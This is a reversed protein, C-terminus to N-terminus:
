GIYFCFYFSIYSACLELGGKEKKDDVGFLVDLDDCFVIFNGSFGFPQIYGLLVDPLSHILFAGMEKIENRHENVWDLDEETEKYDQETMDKLIEKKIDQM